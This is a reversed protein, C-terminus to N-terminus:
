AGLAPDQGGRAVFRTKTDDLFAQYPVTIM